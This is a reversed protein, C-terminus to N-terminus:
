TLNRSVNLHRTGLNAGQAHRWPPVTGDNRVSRMGLRGYQARRSQAFFRADEKSLSDM